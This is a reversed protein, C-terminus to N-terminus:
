TPELQSRALSLHRRWTPPTGGRLQDCGGGAPAIQKCVFLSVLIFPSNKLSFREYKVQVQWTIQFPSFSIFFLLLFHSPSHYTLPNPFLLRDEIIPVSFNHGFTKIWDFGSGPVKERRRRGLSLVRSTRKRPWKRLWRMNENSEFMNRKNLVVDCVVEIDFM